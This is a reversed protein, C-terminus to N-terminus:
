PCGPSLLHCTPPLAFLEPNSETGWHHTSCRCHRPCTPCACLLCVPGSGLRGVSDVLPQVADSREVSVAGPCFPAGFLWQAHKGRRGLAVGTGRDLRPLGAHRGKPCECSWAPPCALCGSPASWLTRRCTRQSRTAWSTATVTMPLFSTLGAIYFHVCVRTRRCTRQQHYGLCCRCMPCALWPNHGPLGWPM